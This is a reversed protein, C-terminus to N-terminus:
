VEEKYVDNFNPTNIFTEKLHAFRMDEIEDVDINFYDGECNFIIWNNQINHIRGIYGSALEPREPDRPKMQIRVYDNEEFIDHNHIVRIIRETRAM